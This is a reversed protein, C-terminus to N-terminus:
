IHGKNYQPINGRNGSRQTKIIFPQQIKDFSKSTIMNNKDMDDISTVNGKDKMKHPTDCKSIQLYQALRADESYIGNSPPM